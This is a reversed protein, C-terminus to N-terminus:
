YHRQCHVNILVPDMAPLLMCTQHLM